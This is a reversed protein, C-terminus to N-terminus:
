GNLTRSNLPFSNMGGGKTHVIDVTDLAGVSETLPKSMSFDLNDNTNVTDSNQGGTSTDVGDTATVFDVFVKGLTTTLTDATSATSVLSKSVNTDIIDSINCSDVLGKNPTFGLSDTTTIVDSPQKTMQVAAMDSAAVASMNGSGSSADIMETLTVGDALAKSVNTDLVDTTSVNDLITTGSGISFVDTATVTDLINKTLERISEDTAAVTELFIKSAQVNINEALNVDDILVRDLSFALIDTPTVTSLNGSGASADVGDSVIVTDTVMKNLAVSIVEELSVDDQIAGLALILEVTDTVTVTEPVIKNLVVECVDALGISDTLTRTVAIATNDVMTVVDLLGEDVDRVIEDSIFVNDLISKVKWTSSIPKWILDPDSAVFAWLIYNNTHSTYDIYLQPDGNIPTGANPPGSGYIAPTSTSNILLSEVGGPNQKVIEIDAGAIVKDELYGTAFDFPSVKVFNDDAPLGEAITMQREILLGTNTRIGLEKHIVPDSTLSLNGTDDLYLLNGPSGILGSITWHGGTIVDYSDAEVAYVVGATEALVTTSANSITGDGTVWDGIVKTHAVEAITIVNTEGSGSGTGREQWIGGIGDEMKDWIEYPVSARDQFSTGAPSNQLLTEGPTNGNVASNPDGTYGLLSQDPMETSAHFLVPRRPLEFTLSDLVLDQEEDTRAM